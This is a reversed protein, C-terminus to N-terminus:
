GQYETVMLYSGLSGGLLRSSAAGNFTFTGASSGGIRIKFTTSNATGAMMRWTLKLNLMQNALSGEQIVAVLANAASDQFLAAIVKAAVSHSGIIVAEIVLLNNASKPTISVSLYQDGETNQPITDDAPITTTGTAVSGSQSIIQQIPMYWDSDLPGRKVHASNSSNRQKLISASTDAWFECPYNVSPASAGAQCSGLAQLAQNLESRVTAGTNADATSIDLDHQSMNNIARM